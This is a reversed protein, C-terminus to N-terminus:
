FTGDAHRCVRRSWSSICVEELSRESRYGSESELRDASGVEKYCEREAHARRGRDLQESSRDTM